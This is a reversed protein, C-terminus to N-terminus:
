EVRVGRQEGRVMSRVIFEEAFTEEEKQVEKHYEELRRERLKEDRSTDVKATLVQEKKEKEKKQLLRLREKEGDIQKRAGDICIDYLRLTEISAGQQMTDDFGQQFQSLRGELGDIEEQKRNVRDMAVAHETKLNDLVQNKYHLVTELSYQFRKM